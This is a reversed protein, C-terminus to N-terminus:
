FSKDCASDVHHTAGCHHQSVTGGAGGPINIHQCDVPTVLDQCRSPLDRALLPQRRVPEVVGHARRWPRDRPRIRTGGHHIVRRMENDGASRGFLQKCHFHPCTSHAVPGIDLKENAAQADRGQLVNFRDMM